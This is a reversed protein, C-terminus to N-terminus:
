SLRLTHLHRRADFSTDLHAANDGKGYYRFLRGDKPHIVFRPYTRDEAAYGYLQTDTEDVEIRVTAPMNAARRILDDASLPFRGPVDFMIYPNARAARVAKLLATTSKPAIIM